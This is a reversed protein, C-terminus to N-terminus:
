YKNLLDRYEKRYKHVHNELQEQQEILNEPLSDYVDTFINNWNPKKQKELM